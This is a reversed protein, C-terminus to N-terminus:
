RVRGPRREPTDLVGTGLLRRVTAVLLVRSCPKALVADCGAEWAAAGEESLDGSVIVIPVHSTAPHARIQRCLELGDMEPMVIDTVVLDPRAGRAAVIAARAGDAQTVHMGARSLFEAFVQRVETADDVVLV